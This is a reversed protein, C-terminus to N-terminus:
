AAGLEEMAAYLREVSASIETSFELLQDATLDGNEMLDESKAQWEATRETIDESATMDGSEMMAITDDVIENYEDILEWMLEYDSKTESSELEEIAAYLREVSATVAESFELWQEETLDGNEMLDEYKAQWEMTRNTIDDSAADVGEANMLAITDDVIADYEDILGLMIEYDDTEEEKAETVKVEEEEVETPEEEVEAETPDEEKAPKKDDTEKEESAAPKKDEEEEAEANGGCAALMSVLMVVLMLMAIIRKKM